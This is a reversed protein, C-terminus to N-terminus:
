PFYSTAQGDAVMRSNLNVYVGTADQGFLEVLYRGYKELDETPRYDVNRKAQHTVVILGFGGNAWPPPQKTPLAYQKILGILYDRAQKGTPSPPVTTLEPANIGFLRYNLPDLWVHHGLDLIMTVTDGDHAAPQKNKGEVLVFGYCHYSPLNYQKLVSFKNETGM